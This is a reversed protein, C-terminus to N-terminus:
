GNEGAAPRQHRCVPRGKRLGEAEAGGKGSLRFIQGNQTSPPITMKTAGEFTNVEVRAGLLAEGLTVPLELYLNDGKREFFPHARVKTTIFLDGQKGGNLPPEGKGALRIRSGNSVGPPIKVQIRETTREIKGDKRTNRPVTITTNLGKLSDDFGIEMSYNVDQGRSPPRPHTGFGGRGPGARGGGFRGGFIDGLGFERLIDELGPPAGSEGWPSRGGFAAHGMADYQRRKEADSLVAYAESIEKFREASKEDGPNVDPHYKRALKKFARKLDTESASRDIGLLEYYDRKPM